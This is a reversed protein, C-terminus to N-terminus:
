VSIYEELEDLLKMQERSLAPMEKLEQIKDFTDPVSRRKNGKYDILLDSEEFSTIQEIYHYFEIRYKEPLLDPALRGIIRIARSRISGELDKLM